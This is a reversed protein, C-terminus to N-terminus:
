PQHVPPKLAHVASGSPCARQSPLCLRRLKRVAFGCAWRWLCRSAQTFSDFYLASAACLYTYNGGPYQAFYAVREAERSTADNGRWGYFNAKSVPFTSLNAAKVAVWAAASFFNVTVEGTCGRCLLMQHPVTTQQRSSLFLLLCQWPLSEPASNQERQQTVLQNSLRVRSSRCPLMSGLCATGEWQALGGACGVVDM